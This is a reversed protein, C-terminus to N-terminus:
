MSLYWTDCQSTRALAARFQSITIGPVSADIVVLAETPQAYQAIPARETLRMHRAIAMGVYVGFVVILIGVVIIARVFLKRANFTEMDTM